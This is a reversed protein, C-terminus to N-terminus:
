NHIARSYTVVSKKLLNSEQELYQATIKREIKALRLHWINGFSPQTSKVYLLFDSETSAFTLPEGFFDSKELNM